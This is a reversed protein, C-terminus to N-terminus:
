TTLTIAVARQASTRADPPNAGENGPHALNYERLVQQALARDNEDPMPHAQMDANIQVKLIAGVAKTADEVAGDFGRTIMKKPLEKQTEDHINKIAVDYNRNDQDIAQMRMLAEAKQLFPQLDHAIALAAAQQKPDTVAM